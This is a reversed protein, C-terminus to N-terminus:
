RKQVARFQRTRIAPLAWERQSGRRKARRLAPWPSNTDNQCKSSHLHNKIPAQCPHFPLLNLLFLVLVAFCVFGRFNVRPAASYGKCSVSFCMLHFCACRSLFLFLFLYLSRLSSPLSSFLFPSRFSSVPLCAFPLFLFSPFPFSCFPLPPFPSPLPFTFPPSPFPSSLFPLSFSLSLPLPFSSPLLHSPFSLSPSSCNRGSHATPTKM